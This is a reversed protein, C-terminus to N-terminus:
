VSATTTGIADVIAAGSIPAREAGGTPKMSWNSPSYQAKVWDTEWADVVKDTGNEVLDSELRTNSSTVKVTWTDDPNPDYGYDLLLEEGAQIERLAYISAVNTICCNPEGPQPTYKEEKECKTCALTVKSYDKLVRSGGCVSCTPYKAHNIFQAFLFPQVFGSEHEVPLM